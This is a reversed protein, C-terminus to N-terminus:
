AVDRFAPGRRQRWCAWLLMLLGCAGRPEPVTAVGDASTFKNGNWAIFDQGDVLGDGNFDGRCWDSTATFKNQNWLIYDQGDVVGNLDADGILTGKIDEIWMTLDDQDVQGDGDLDYSADQLNNAVANSMLNADVCDLTGDGNFDGLLGLGTVEIRVSNPLYDVDWSYGAPLSTHTFTGLVGEGTTILTFTQGLQPTFGGALAVELTSEDGIFAFRDVILEDHGTGAGLGALDFSVIGGAGVAVDGGTIELTGVGPGQEDGVALRGGEEIRVQGTIPGSGVFVSGNGSITGGVVDIYQADVHGGDM